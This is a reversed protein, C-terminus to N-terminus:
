QDGYKNPDECNLRGYYGHEYDIEFGYKDCYFLYFMIPGSWKEYKRYGIPQPSGLRALFYKWRSVEITEYEKTYSNFAKVKM